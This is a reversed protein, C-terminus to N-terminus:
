HTGIGYASWRGCASKDRGVRTPRAFGALPVGNLGSRGSVASVTFPVRTLTVILSIMAPNDMQKLLALLSTQLSTGTELLLAMQETFFKRDKDSIRKKFQLKSAFGAVSSSANEQPAKIKTNIAM